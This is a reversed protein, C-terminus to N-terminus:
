KESTNRPTSQMTFLLNLPASVAFTAVGLGIWLIEEPFQLGLLILSLFGLIFAQLAMLPRPKKISNDKAFYGQLAVASFKLQIVFVLGSLLFIGCSQLTPTGRIASFVGLVSTIVLLLLFHTKYLSELKM